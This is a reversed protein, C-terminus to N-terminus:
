RRRSRCCLSCGGFAGTHVGTLLHTLPGYSGLRERCEAQGISTGPCMWRAWEEARMACVEDKGIRRRMCSQFYGSPKGTIPSVFASGRSLTNRAMLSVVGGRRHQDRDAFYGVCVVVILRRDLKRPLCSPTSIHDLCRNQCCLMRVAVCMGCLSSTSRNKRASACVASGNLCCCALWAKCNASNRITFRRTSVRVIWGRYRWRLSYIVVWVYWVRM